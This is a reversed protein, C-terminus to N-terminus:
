PELLKFGTGADYVRRATSEELEFLIIEMTQWVRVGARTCGTITSPGRGGAIHIHAEPASNDDDWFVTGTGAIEHVGIMARQMPTVPTADAEEPGVVLRSGGEAGGVVILAAARISHSQVFGEVEDNLTDGNELRLVFVRGMKAESYKM